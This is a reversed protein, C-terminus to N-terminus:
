CYSSSTSWGASSIERELTRTAIKSYKAEELESRAEIETDFDLDERDARAELECYIKAEFAEKIDSTFILSDLGAKERLDNAQKLAAAAESLKINIERVLSDFDQELDSM